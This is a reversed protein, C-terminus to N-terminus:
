SALNPQALAAGDGGGGSLTTIIPIIFFLSLFGGVAVRLVRKRSFQLVFCIFISPASTHLNSHNKRGSLLTASWWLSTTLPRTSSHVESESGRTTSGIQYGSSPSSGVEVAHRSRRTWPIMSLARSAYSSPVSM